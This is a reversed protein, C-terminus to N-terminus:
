IKSKACICRDELIFAVHTADAQAHCLTLCTTISMSQIKIDLSKDLVVNSNYIINYCRNWHDSFPWFSSTWTWYRFPAITSGEWAGLEGDGRGTVVVDEHLQITFNHGHRQMESYAQFLVSQVGEETALYNETGLQSYVEEELLNECSFCTALSLIALIKYSSKM